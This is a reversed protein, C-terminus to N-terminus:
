EERLAALPDIRTARRAPFYSAALGAVALLVIVGIYTLPDAPKVGFLMNGLARTAALAGAVGILLGAASLALGQRLVLRLVDGRSAGLAMRVGIEGSRRGVTYAMVGYVGAMALCLALVAFITILVTRFRPAAVNGAIRAELTTFKVPVQPSIEQATRRLTESLAAPDQVTRIVLTLQTSTRPHQRYPMYIEPSPSVAPGRQRIDAVVGVIRMPKSSDKDFGCTITHGIPDQNPFSRKVLAENVLVTRPADSTDADSFDRGYRLPIALADLTHPAIVSFVASVGDRQPTRDVSYSGWSSVGGPPVRTAGASRVGPMANATSLLRQYYDAAHRDAPGSSPVATTMLLVNEPRFGLAVNHLAIFSKLLLGAGAVLVVSLAIEATVLAARMRGTRGGASRLGGQKLADSLDIRSAQIAPAIGFLLSATVSVLFTFALVTGDISIESLRPTDAPALAVLGHVGWLALMLGATGASLSLVMSEVILQRIIRSRGAGIAARIAMERTRATARALLLNAMNACAILLVLAVAGLLVYLTARVDGVLEDRLPTILVGKDKNSGPYQRELRSGIATMQAQAQTLTVGPKLRGVVLYNHASRSPTEGFVAAPIWLDTDDPFHFRPPLVGVIRLSQNEIRLTQGFADRNGGYHSQWFSHSIVVAAPGGPHEEESTFLRGAAPAVDFVRFFDPTVAAAHGYEATPGATIATTEDSYYAMADFSASQDHWDHFDPASVQGHESSRKWVSSLRVIRDPDRYDLPKLLVSNVVSFVATNAGIGLAMVVIALVAVSPNNRLTRLAFKLDVQLRM